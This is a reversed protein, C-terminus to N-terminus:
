RSKARKKQSPESAVTDAKSAASATLSDVRSSLSGLQEALMKREGQEAALQRKLDVVEDSVQKHSAELGAVLEKLANISATSQEPAPAAPQTAPPAPSQAVAQTTPTVTNQWLAFAGIGGAVLILTLVIALLGTGPKHSSSPQTQTSSDTM